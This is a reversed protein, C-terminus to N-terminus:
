SVEVKAFGGIAKSAMDKMRKVDAFPKDTPATTAIAHLAGWLKAIREDLKRIDSDYRESKAIPHM